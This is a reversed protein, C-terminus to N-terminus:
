PYIRCQTAGFMDNGSFQVRMIDDLFNSHEFSIFNRPLDSLSMAEEFSYLSVNREWLSLTM